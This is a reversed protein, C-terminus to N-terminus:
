DDGDDGAETNGFAVSSVLDRGEREKFELKRVQDRTFKRAYGRITNKDLQLIECIREFGNVLASDYFLWREADQACKRLRLEKSEKWLAYDFIARVIVKAWLVRYPVYREAIYPAPAM